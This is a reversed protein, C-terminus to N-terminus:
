RPLMRLPPFPTAPLLLVCQEPPNVAAGSPAGGVGAGKKSAGQGRSASYHNKEEKEVSATSDSAKAGELQKVKKIAEAQSMAGYPCSEQGLHTWGVSWTGCHHCVTKKTEKEKEERPGSQGNKGGRGRDGKGRRGAGGKRAGGPGRVEASQVSAVAAATVAATTTEKPKVIAVWVPSMSKIAEALTRGTAELGKAYLEAGCGKIFTEFLVAEPVLGDRSGPGAALRNLARLEAAFDDPSKGAGRTKSFLEVKAKEKVDTTFYQAELYFGLALLVPVGQDEPEAVAETLDAAYTRLFERVRQAVSPDFAAALDHAKMRTLIPEEARAPLLNANAFIVDVLQSPDHGDGKFAVGRIALIVNKIADDMAKASLPALQPAPQARAAQGQDGGQGGQQAQGAQQAVNQGPQRVRARGERERAQKKTPSEAM